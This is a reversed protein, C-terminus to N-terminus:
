RCYDSRKQETSEMWMAIGPFSGLSTFTGDERWLILAARSITSFGRGAANGLPPQGLLRNQHVM